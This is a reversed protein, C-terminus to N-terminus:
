RIGSIIKFTKAKRRPALDPRNELKAIRLYLADVISRAGSRDYTAGGGDPSNVQEAGSALQMELSRVWHRCEEATWFQFLEAL